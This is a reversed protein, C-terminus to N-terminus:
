AAVKQAPRAPAPLAFPHGWHICLLQWELEAAGVSSDCAYLEITRAGDRQLADFLPLLDADNSCTSVVVVRGRQVPWNFSGARATQDPPLVLVHSTRAECDDGNERYWKAAAWAKP